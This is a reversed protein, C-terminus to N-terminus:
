ILNWASKNLCKVNRDLPKLISKFKNANHSDIYCISGIEITFPKVNYNRDELKLWWTIFCLKKQTTDGWINTEFYVTREILIINQMDRKIVVIQLRHTTPLIDCPLSLRNVISGYWHPSSPRCYHRIGWPLKTINSINWLFIGHIDGNNM